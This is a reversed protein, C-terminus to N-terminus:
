DKRQNQVGGLRKVKHIMIAIDQKSLYVDGEAEIEEPSIVKTELHKIIKLEDSMDIAEEISSGLDIKGANFPLEVFWWGDDCILKCEFKMM